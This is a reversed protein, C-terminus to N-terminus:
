LNQGPSSFFQAQCGGHSSRELEISLDGVSYDYEVSDCQTHEHEHNSALLHGCCMKLDDTGEDMNTQASMRTFSLFEQTIIQNLIM